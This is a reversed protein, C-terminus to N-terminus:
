FSSLRFLQNILVNHFPTIGDYLLCGLPEVVINLRVLLRLPTLLTHAIQPAIAATYTSAVIGDVVIDGHLTHPAFLGHQKVHSIQEVQSSGNLTRLKDGLKVNKAADLKGNVYLYHDASLTIIHNSQTELQIFDYLQDHKAHSFLFVNSFSTESIRIQHGAHLKTMPISPGQILQITSSSPFCAPSSESDDDKNDDSDVAELTKSKDDSQTTDAATPTVAPAPTQKTNDVGDSPQGPASTPVLVPQEPVSVPTSTSSQSASKIPFPLLVRDIAHIISPGAPQDMAAVNVLPDMIRSEGDLLKIGSVLIKANALTNVNGQVRIDDFRISGSILHFQFLRKTNSQDTIYHQRLFQYTEEESEMSPPTIKLLTAIDFATEAFAADNPAFMTLADKELISLLDSDVALRYFLDYNTLDNDFSQSSCKQLFDALTAVRQCLANTPDHFTFLILLFISLFINFHYM